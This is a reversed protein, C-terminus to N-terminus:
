MGPPKLHEPAFCSHFWVVLFVSRTVDVYTYRILFVHGIFDTDTFCIINGPCLSRPLEDYLLACFCAAALSPAPHSNETLM